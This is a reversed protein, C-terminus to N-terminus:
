IDKKGNKKTIKKVKEPKFLQDEILFSEVDTALQTPVEKQKNHIVTPLVITPECQRLKELQMHWLDKTVQQFNYTKQEILKYIEQWADLIIQGEKNEFELIQFNNKWVNWNCHPFTSAFFNAAREASNDQNRVFDPSNIRLKM